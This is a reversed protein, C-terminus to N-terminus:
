PARNSLVSLLDRKVGEAKYNAMMFKRAFRLNCSCSEPPKHAELMWTNEREQDQVLRHQVSRARVALGRAASNETYNWNVM